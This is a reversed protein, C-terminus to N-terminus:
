HKLLQEGYFSQLLRFCAPKIRMLRMLSKATIGANGQEDRGLKLALPNGKLKAALLLCHMIAEPYHSVPQYKSRGANEYATLWEVTVVGEGRRILSWYPHPRGTLKWWWCCLWLCSRDIV